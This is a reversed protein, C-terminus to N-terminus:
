YAFNIFQLFLNFPHLFLKLIHHVFNLRSSRINANPVFGYIFFLLLNFVHFYATNTACRVIRYKVFLTWNKYCLSCECKPFSKIRANFLQTFGKLIMNGYDFIVGRMQIIFFTESHRLPNWFCLFFNKWDNLLVWVLEAMYCINPRQIMDLQKGWFWFLVLYAITLMAM